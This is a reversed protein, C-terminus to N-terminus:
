DKREIREIGITVYVKFYFLAKDRLHEPLSSFFVLADMKHFPSDHYCMM